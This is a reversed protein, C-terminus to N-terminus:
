CKCFQRRRTVSQSRCSPFGVVFITVSIAFAKSQTGWLFTVKFNSIKTITYVFKAKEMVEAGHVLSSAFRVTKCVQEISVIIMWLLVRSWQVRRICMLTLQTVLLQSGNCNAPLQCTEHINCEDAIPNVLSLVAHPRSEISVQHVAHDVLKEAPFAPHNPVDAMESLINFILWCIMRTRRSNQSKRGRYQLVIWKPHQVSLSTALSWFRPCVNREVASRWRKFWVSLGIRNCTWKTIFLCIFLYVACRERCGHPM